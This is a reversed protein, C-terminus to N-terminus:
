SRTPTASSTVSRRVSSRGAARSGGLKGVLAKQWQYTASLPPDNAVNSKGDSTFYTPSGRPRSTRSRRSTATTAAAHFGAPLLHRGVGQDAEGRRRRVRLLDQPAGNIGVLRHFDDKNYYLGYADSWCRCRASTATSSPTSSRRLPSLRGRPTSAPSRWSPPSTWSRRPPAPLQGVTDTTFSSVVDPAASGGARLAQNYKGDTINGVAKVHVNPYKKEFGDITSQIAKVENPASWGHWFTITVDANPNDNAGGKSSGSCGTVALALATLTGCLALPRTLRRQTTM